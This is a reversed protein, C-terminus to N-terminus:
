DDERALYWLAARARECVDATYTLGLKEFVTTARRDVTEGSTRLEAEIHTDSKGAAVLALLERQERSLKPLPSRAARMRAEIMADVIAPDVVVGGGAVTDIATILRDRRSIREKLLYARGPCSDVVALVNAPEADQSLIVVGVASGQSRLRRALHIGQQGPEPPLRTDIVLVDPQEAALAARLEDADSCLTVLDLGPHGEVTGALFQRISSASEAILVRIV